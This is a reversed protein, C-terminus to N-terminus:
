QDALKIQQVRTEDLLYYRNRKQAPFFYDVNGEVTYSFKEVGNLKFVSIQRQSYLLIEKRKLDVCDYANDFTIEMRKKGSGTDMVTMRYPQDERGTETIVGLNKKDYFVSRIEEKIQKEVIQKPKKMNSWIYFIGDGMLCVKSDELFRIDTVLDDEYNQAGVLYDRSKGIESFNYFAVRSEAKGNTVSLYSAVVSLGDPSLAVAIPYGDEVNTPIEALLSSSVDYPDYLNIMDSATDELLLAVVGQRSVCAQRIEYDVSLETGADEGNYIYAEKGGIDAVLVYDGCYCIEPNDMDYSGTWITKGQSDLESVGDKSYKILYGDKSIYEVTNSDEREYSSVVRYNDYRKNVYGNILLVFIGVAAALSGACILLFLRRHRRPQREPDKRDEIINDITDM